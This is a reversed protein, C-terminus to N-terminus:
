FDPKGDMRMAYGRLLAHVAVQLNVASLAIYAGFLADYEVSM